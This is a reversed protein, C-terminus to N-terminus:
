KTEGGPICKTSYSMITYPKNTLKCFEIEAKCGESEEYYDPFVATDCYSLLTMCHSMTEEYPLLGQHFHFAHLPSVLTVHPYMLQAMKLFDTVKQVNEEPNNTYPHGIYLIRNM